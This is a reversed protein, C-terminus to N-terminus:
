TPGPELYAVDRTGRQRDIRGASLIRANRHDHKGAAAILKQGDVELSCLRTVPEHGPPDGAHHQLIAHRIGPRVPVLGATTVGPSSGGHRKFVRLPRKPEYANMRGLPVDIGVLDTHEPEGRAAM